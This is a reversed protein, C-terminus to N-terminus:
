AQWDEGTERAGEAGGESGSNLPQLGGGGGGGEGGGVGDGEWGEEKGGWGSSKKKARWHCAGWVSKERYM